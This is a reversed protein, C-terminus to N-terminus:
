NGLTQVLADRGSPAGFTGFNGFDAASRGEILREVRTTPQANYVKAQALAPAVVAAILAAALTVKTMRNM